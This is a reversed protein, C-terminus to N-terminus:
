CKRQGGSAGAAAVGMNEGGNNADAAGACCCGFLQLAQWHCVVWHGACKWQRMSSGLAKLGLARSPRQREVWRLAAITCVLLCDPAHHDTGQTLSPLKVRWCPGIM